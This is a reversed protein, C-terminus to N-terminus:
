TCFRSYRINGKEFVDIRIEIKVVLTETLVMLPLFLSSALLHRGMPFILTDFSAQIRIQPCSNEASFSTSIM